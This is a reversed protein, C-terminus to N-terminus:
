DSDSDLVVMREEEVKEEKKEEPAEEKKQSASGTKLRLSQILHDQADNFPNDSM